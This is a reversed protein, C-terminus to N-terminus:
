RQKQQEVAEALRENFLEAALDEIADETEEMCEIISELDAVIRHLEDRTSDDATLEAAQVLRDAITELNDAIVELNTDNNNIDTM